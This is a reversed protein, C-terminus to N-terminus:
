LNRIQAFAYDVPINYVKWNKLSTIVGNNSQVEVKETIGKWDYIGKGFNM